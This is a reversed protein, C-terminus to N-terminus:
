KAGGFKIRFETGRSTNLNIRGGLQNEALLTVLRLGLSETKRFDITDPIGIGNDSVVLEIEDDETRHLFITIEGDRGDPFAYKLSNTVLENIILGCPLASDVSLMVNDANVHLTIKGSVGYSYLLENVM